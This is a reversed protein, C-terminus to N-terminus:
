SNQGFVKNIADTRSHVQLKEYIKRVYTRVTEISIFMQDAIEKYQFGRSLAKLMEQERQTFTQLLEPNQHQFQFAKLVYHAIQPSMPSGGQAIYRVADILQAPTANKLIYGTAGACLAAFTKDQDEHVTCMMYQVEPRQPKLLKVCDIGNMGPLNIDMLVVDAVTDEFAEM